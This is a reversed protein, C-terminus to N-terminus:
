KIRIRNNYNIEEAKMPTMMPTISEDLYSHGGIMTCAGKNEEEDDSDSVQPLSNTGCTQERGDKLVRSSNQLEAIDM